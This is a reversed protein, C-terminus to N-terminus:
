CMSALVFNDGNRLRCKWICKRLIFNIFKAETQECPEFSCYELKPESLLKVGVLRCVLKRFWHHNIWRRMYADSPRSSNFHAFILYGEVHGPFDPRTMQISIVYFQAVMKPKADHLPIRLVFVRPRLLINWNYIYPWSTMLRYLIGSIMKRFCKEGPLDFEIYRHSAQHPACYLFLKGNVISSNRYYKPSYIM